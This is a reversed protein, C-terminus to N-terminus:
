DRGAGTAVGRGGRGCGPFGRVDHVRVGWAGAAAALGSITATAVERGAPPRPAGDAGALLTGLFGKRSAGVLVPFGLEVLLGDVATAVALQAGPRKAFGLGPDIM